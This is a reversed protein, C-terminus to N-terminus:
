KVVVATFVPGDAGGMRYVAVRNQANLARAGVVSKGHERSVICTTGRAGHATPAGESDPVDITLLAGAHTTEAVLDGRYKTIM